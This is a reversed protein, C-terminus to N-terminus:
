RIETGDTGSVVVHIQDDGPPAPLKELVIFRQGDRQRAYLGYCPPIDPIPPTFLRRPPGINLEAGQQVEVSMLEGHEGMYFLERGDGRWLPTCGFGASVQRIGALGQAKAVYVRYTTWQRASQPPESQAYTLWQGDPSFSFRGNVSGTSLLVTPKTSGDAPVVMATVEDRRFLIFRGDPSWAEAKNSRGDSYLLRPTREGPTLLMLDIKSEAKRYADYLLTRSDPSWVPDAEGDGYTAQSLLQTDLKLLWIHMPSTDRATGMSLAAMKEDPSLVFQSWRAPEAVTGLKHGDRGYWAPQSASRPPMHRYALVNQSVSFAGVEKASDTIPVPEGELNLRQDLRQRLLVGDRLFVLKGPGALSAKTVNALIQKDTPLDLSGAFVGSEGPIYRGREIRKVFIFNRGDPLIQPWSHLNEGRAHDLRRVETVAGGLASVVYLSGSAFMITNNTAWSGGEPIHADCIEQVPGGSAPVRKLKGEAFFGINASDPSWFPLLGGDTNELRRAGESNLHRLWLASRGSNDIPAFVLQRGDPSVVPGRMAPDNVVAPDNVFRTGEPVPFSFQVVGIRMAPASRQKILYGAALGLVMAGATAAAWGPRTRPRTATQTGVRDVDTSDPEHNVRHVPAIFRYGQRAITEVYRPREASDLLTQRLKAVAANLSREFDVFTDSPWLRSKLDERTVIEGPRELLAILIRLPQEQIRLLVGSKRLECGAANLEFQGFRWREQAACPKTDMESKSKDLDYRLKGRDCLARLKLDDKAQRTNRFERPFSLRSAAGTYLSAGEHVADQLEQARGGDRSKQRLRLSPYRDLDIVGCLQRFPNDGPSLSLGIPHELLRPDLNRPDVTRRNFALPARILDAFLVSIRAKENEGDHFLRRISGNM